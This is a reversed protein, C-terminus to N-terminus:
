TGTKDRGRLLGDCITTYGVCREVGGVVRWEGGGWVCGWCVEWM